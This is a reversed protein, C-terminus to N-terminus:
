LTVLNILFATFLVIATVAMGWHALAWDAEQWNEFQSM